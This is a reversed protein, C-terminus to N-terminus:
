SVLYGGVGCHPNTAKRQFEAKLQSRLKAREAIRQREERSVDFLENPNWVRVRNESMKIGGGVLSFEGVGPLNLTVPLNQLAFAM